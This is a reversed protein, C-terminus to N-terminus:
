GVIDKTTKIFIQGIEEAATIPIAAGSKGPMMEGGERSSKYWERINIYYREGRRCLSLRYVNVADKQVEQLPKEEDWSFNSNM